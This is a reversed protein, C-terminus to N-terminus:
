SLAGLADRQNALTAISTAIEAAREREKAVVDAPAKEVFSANGLKGEIRTLEQRRRAIEKDLRAREAAVDILGALPVMLKLEGVLQMAAPPPEVGNALWEIRELKALRRLLSETATLRDRDANNGGQLLLPISQAPKINMEGRITRVALVVSKLWEIAAEAFPDDTLESAEPYPALMITEGAIGTLPAVRRWLAETIFPIIPHAARLLLELVKLLSRRTGRQVDASAGEDWLLPKTLELYWDCYEHWAFDYIVKALLDFRYTEIAREADALMHRLRSAIWRDALTEEAPGALPAGETNMLVFKTANWLKNCFNRYGEIRKLDLRVDRGTSALACCTFRLADTGYSPIGDPFERRTAKEITKAMQPQLLSDTRKAILDPLSIGDVLDLPDIGNGRSKSMKQGDADRVLGHLYVKRFPVEGMFHLTMMIMRAVWFFIIDHGTVLVDTPHFMELEATQEPWGLTGFTWLASSFWTELVDEDPTLVVDDALKYKRRAEAENRAV